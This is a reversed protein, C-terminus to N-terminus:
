APLAIFLVVFNADFVGLILQEFIVNEHSFCDKVFTHALSISPSHFETVM